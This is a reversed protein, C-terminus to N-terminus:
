QFHAIFKFNIVLHVPLLYSLEVEFEEEQQAYLGNCLTRKVEPFGTSRQFLNFANIKLLHQLHKEALLLAVIDFIFNLLKHSGALSLDVSGAV